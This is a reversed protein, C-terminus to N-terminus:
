TRPPWSWCGPTMPTESFPVVLADFAAGERFVHLRVTGDPNVGIIIAAEPAPYDCEPVYGSRTYHVIRGISPKQEM